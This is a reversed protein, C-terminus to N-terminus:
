NQVYQEVIVVWWILSPIVDIEIEDSYEKGDGVIEDSSMLTFIILSQKLIM